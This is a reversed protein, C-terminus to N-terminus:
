TSSFYPQNSQSYNNVSGPFVTIRVRIDDNTITGTASNPNIVNYDDGKAFTLKVTENVKLNSDAKPYIVILKTAQNSGFNLSGNNNNFSKAGSIADDNNYTANKNVNKLARSTKGDRRLTYNCNIIIKLILLLSKPIPYIINLM